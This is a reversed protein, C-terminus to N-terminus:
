QHYIEGKKHKKVKKAQISSNVKINMNEISKVSSLSQHNENNPYVLSDLQKKNSKFEQIFKEGKRFRLGRVSQKGLEVYDDPVNTAFNDQNLPALADATM